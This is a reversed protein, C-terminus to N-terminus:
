EKINSLPTTSTTTLNDVMVRWPKVSSPEHQKPQSYYRGNNNLTQYSHIVNNSNQRGNSILTQFLFPEDQPKINAAM